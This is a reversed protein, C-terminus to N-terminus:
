RDRRLEEACYREIYAIVSQLVEHLHLLLTIWLICSFMIIIAGRVDDCRRCCRYKMTRESRGYLFKCGPYSNNKRKELTKAFVFAGFHQRRQQRTYGFIYLNM